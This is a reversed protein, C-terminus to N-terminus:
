QRSGVAMGVALQRSGVAETTARNGRREWGYVPLAAALALALIGPGAMPIAGKAQPKKMVLIQVPASSNTAIGDSVEVTLNHKGPRLGKASLEKGVGIPEGDAFWHYGLMDDDDDIASASLEMNEGEKFTTGNVPTLIKVNRPPDNVDTVTIKFEASANLGGRDTVTIKVTNVGINKASPTFNVLGDPTITFLSTTSRFTLIDGKDPDSANMRFSVAQREPVTMDAPRELVPPDNVDSVTITFSRSDSLGGTDTVTVTAPHEGVDEEQPTFSIVGASTINFLDSQSSFRLRDQGIDLDPDTANVKLTFHEREPVIM